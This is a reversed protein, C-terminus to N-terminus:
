PSEPKEGEQRPNTEPEHIPLPFQQPGGAEDRFAAYVNPDFLAISEVESWLIIIGMDELDVRATEDATVQLDWEDVTLPDTRDTLRSIHREEAPVQSLRGYLDDYYTTIEVTKESGRRYGSALPLLRLSTLTSAPNLNPLIPEGIYIRHSKLTVLLQKKYVFARFIARLASDDSQHVFAVLAAMRMLRTRRQCRAWLTRGKHEPEQIGVLRLDQRRRAVLAVNGGLASVVALLLANIFSATVGAQEVNERAQELGTVTWNPILAALLEGAIFFVLSYGLLHLAFRDTRLHEASFRRLYCLHIFVYGALLYLGAGFLQRATEV